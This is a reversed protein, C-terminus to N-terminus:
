AGLPPVVKPQHSMSTVAFRSRITMSCHCVQVANPPAPHRLPPPSCQRGEATFGRVCSKACLLAGRQAGTKLPVILATAPTYRAGLLSGMPVLLTPYHSGSPFVRNFGLHLILNRTFNFKTSLSPFWNDYEGERTTHPQTRFQYDIGEVSTARRTAANIPYGAAQVQASPLPDWELSETSTREWRLGGQVQMLGFRLAAMGYGASIRTALYARNYPASVASCGLNRPLTRSVQMM